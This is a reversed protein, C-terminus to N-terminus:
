ICRLKEIESFLFQTPGAWGRKFYLAGLQFGSQPWGTEKEPTDYFVVEKVGFGAKHMDRLRAKFGLFHGTNILFVLNDTLTYSHIAFDRAKSWPPNTIIWDVKQNYAFFDTGKSLELSVVNKINHARFARLFAGEGSAPELVSGQILPSFHSVIKHALVDPTMVLDSKGGVTAAM